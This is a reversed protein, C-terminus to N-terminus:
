DTGVEVRVLKSPVISRLRLPIIRNQTANAAVNDRDADSAYDRMSRDRTNGPTMDEAAVEESWHAYYGVFLDSAPRSGRQNSVKTPATTTIHWLALGPAHPYERMVLEPVASILQGSSSAVNAAATEPPIPLSLGVPVGQLAFNATGFNSLGGRSDITADTAYASVGVLVKETTGECFPVLWYPGTIKRLMATAQPPPAEYASAAYFARGCFSLHYVDIPGGRDLELQRQVWPTARGQFATALRVAQSADIEEYLPSLPKHKDVFLGNADVARMVDRNLYEALRPRYQSEVATPRENCASVAM